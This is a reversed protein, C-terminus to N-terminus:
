PKKFAKAIGIGVVTSVVATAATKGAGEIVGSAFKKGKTKKPASLESYQQDLKMRDIVKRLEDNSMHKTPHPKSSKGKTGSGKSRKSPAGTGAKRTGWKMGKAGFHILNGEVKLVAESM